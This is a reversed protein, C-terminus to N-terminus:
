ELNANGIGSADYKEFHLQFTTGGESSDFHSKGNLQNTLIRIIHMGLSQIDEPSTGNGFGSGNDSIKLTVKENNERIQVLIDGSEDEDFAHKYINTVVENIILSCPIAQNINLEVPEKEIKHDIKKGGNMAKDINVILKEIIDSFQLQSFSQSQYLLEHITAMTSIRFISDYLKKQVADDPEEFAQLQMMGSVVALNNKVRHHIEALLVEKEELSEELEKEYRKQNTVERGIAIWHSYGGEGDSVPVMSTNVWFPEGNKRYNIFEAECVKWDNMSERLRHRKEESTEAGTLFSMTSGIVEHASYGTMQKFADNVYVIKRGPLTTPKAELIVVAETTNTIVSELLKLREEEMLRETIDVALVIKAPRGQYTTESSEVKVQIQQGNKKRHQQVGKWFLRSEDTITAPDPEDLEVIDPMTLKLFEEKEYGYHEVAAENVNLIRFTEMDYLWMPQPSVEFLDRYNKESERITASFINREISYTISKYLLTPSLDDKLLYDSIGKSLSKISFSLDTYGTLIIVPTNTTLNLIAEILPDGHHDPLSLDLLIIDFSFSSDSILEKAESFMTVHTLEPNEFVDLLFEEVLVFDGVNDEVVLIHIPRSDKQM